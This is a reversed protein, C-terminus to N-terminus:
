LDGKEDEIQELPALAVRGLRVMDRAAQLYLASVEHTSRAESMKTLDQAVWRAVARILDLDRGSIYGRNLLESLAEHAKVPDREITSESPFM